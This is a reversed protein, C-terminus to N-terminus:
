NISAIIQRDHVVAAAVGAAADDPLRIRKAQHEILQGDPAGVVFGNEALWVASKAKRDGPEGGLLDGNVLLGSGRVPRYTSKRVQKWEAPTPGDLFVVGESTGVFVGSEVPLMVDIRKPFQVWDTRPDTMGHNFARSPILVRGRAVLLRGRWRGVFDGGPMPELFQNTAARGLDQAGLAFTTLGPFPADQARMLVDGNPGTRYIRVGDVDTRSSTPLTVLLGQGATIDVFHAPSLPGEEEDRLWAVAVAYRGAPLGGAAHAATVPAPPRDLALLGVTDDPLIVYLRDYACVIIEGNLEDFTVPGPHTLTRLPTFTLSSGALKVRCLAGDRVGYSAGGESTWLSHCLGALAISRGRRRDVGAARDIVVNVADRVAGHPVAYDPSVNDIGLAPLNLKIDMKLELKDLAM